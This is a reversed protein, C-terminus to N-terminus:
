ERSIELIFARKLRKLSSPQMVSGWNLFDIPNSPTPPASYSLELNNASMVRPEKTIISKGLECYFFKHIKQVLDIVSSQM